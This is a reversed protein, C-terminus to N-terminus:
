SRGTQPIPLSPTTLAGSANDFAAQLAAGREDLFVPGNPTGYGLFSHDQADFLVWSDYAPHHHIVDVVMGMRMDLKLVFDTNDDAAAKGVAYAIHQESRDFVVPQLEQKFWGAERVDKFRKSGASRYYGWRKGDDTGYGYRVKGSPDAM